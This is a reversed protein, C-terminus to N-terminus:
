SPTRLRYRCTSSSTACSSELTEVAAEAIRGTSSRRMSDDGDRKGEDIAVHGSADVTAVRVGSLWDVTLGFRRSLLGYGGGSIHGGAGVSYCSGAPLTRGFRWHLGRYIDGITAGAEIYYAGGEPERGINNLLSM